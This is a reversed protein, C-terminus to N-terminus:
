VYNTIKIKFDTYSSLLFIKILRLEHRLHTLNLVNESPPFNTPHTSTEHLVKLACFSTIFNKNSREDPQLVV